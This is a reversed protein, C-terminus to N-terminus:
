RYMVWILFAVFGFMLADVRCRALDYSIRPDGPGKAPKRKM